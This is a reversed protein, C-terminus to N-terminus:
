ISVGPTVSSSHNSSQLIYTSMPAGQESKPDPDVSRFRCALHTFPSHEAGTNSPNVPTPPAGLEEWRMGVHTHHM